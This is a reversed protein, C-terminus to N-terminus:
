AAETGDDMGHIYRQGRLLAAIAAVVSVVASVAFDRHLGDM